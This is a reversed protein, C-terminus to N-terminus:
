FMVQFQVDSSHDKDEALRMMQYWKMVSLM